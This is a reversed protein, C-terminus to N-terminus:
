SDPNKGYNGGAIKLIEGAINKLPIVRDVAGMEIAAKPMGFIVSSKEDQVITVGAREKIQAMGDAGDRGMGTLLVACAKDGYSHAVSKFLVDVSPRCNNVPPDDTLRIRDGSVEMHRDGPGVLVVGPYVPEGDAALKVRLSCERDLWEVFGATFSAGIHQVLVAGLHFTAPLGQLVSLVAKPGGTSAGIALIGTQTKRPKPERPPTPAAPAAPLKRRGKLHSIVRISSLLRIKQVLTDHLAAFGERSLNDPKEMVDLAGVQIAEFAINVDKRNISSALVLIPTPTYAMIQEVATLGDMVPMMVDMTILDPRLERTLDIAEKGNAAEGVVEVETGKLLDKVVERVVRSDDVILVRIM